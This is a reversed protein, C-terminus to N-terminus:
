RGIAQRYCDDFLLEWECQQIKMCVARAAPSDRLARECLDVFGSADWDATAFLFGAAGASQAKEALERAAIALPAFVGHKGVRRFWYKANSFDGERRHMIAHWYSLTPNEIAQSIQHSEDLFDHRLWLGALCALAMDSNQLAHPAVVAEPSLAALSARLPV